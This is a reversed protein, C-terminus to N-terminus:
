RAAEGLAGRGETLRAFLWSSKGNEALRALSGDAAAYRGEALARLADSLEIAADRERELLARAQKAVVVTQARESGYPLMTAGVEVNLMAIEADMPTKVDGNGIIPIAGNVSEVVRAIGERKCEGSFKMETTRGHVTVAVVGVDALMRALHPSCALGAEYDSNSWCLRIKCTLPVPCQATPM